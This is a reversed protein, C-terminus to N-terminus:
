TNISTQVKLASVWSVVEAEAFGAVRKESSGFGGATNPPFARICESLSFSFGEVACLRASVAGRPTGDCARCAGECAKASAASLTRFLVCRCVCACVRRMDIRNVAVRPYPSHASSYCKIYTQIWRRPYPQRETRRGGPAKNPNNTRDCTSAFMKHSSSGPRISTWEPIRTILHERFGDHRQGLGFCFMNGKLGSVVQSVWQSRRVRAVRAVVLSVRM